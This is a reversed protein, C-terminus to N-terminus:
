VCVSSGEKLLHAWETYFTDWTLHSYGKIHKDRCYTVAKMWLMAMGANGQFTIVDQPPFSTTCIKRFISGQEWESMVAYLFCKQSVSYTHLHSKIGFFTQLNALKKKETKQWKLDTPLFQITQLCSSIWQQQPPTWSCNYGYKLYMIVPLWWSKTMMQTWPDFFLSVYLLTSIIVNPLLQWSFKECKTSWNLTLTVHYLHYLSTLLFWHPLNRQAISNLTDPNGTCNSWNDALYYM